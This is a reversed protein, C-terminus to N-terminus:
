LGLAKVTLIIFLLIINLWVFFKIMVVAWLKRRLGLYLIFAYVSLSIVIRYGSVKETGLGFFDIVTNILATVAFLFLYIKIIKEKRESEEKFEYM